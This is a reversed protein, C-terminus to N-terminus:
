LLRKTKTVKPFFEDNSSQIMQTYNEVRSRVHEPSLTTLLANLIMGGSFDVSYDDNNM